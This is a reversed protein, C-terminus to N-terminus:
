TLVHPLPGRGAPTVLRLALALGRGTPVVSPPSHSLQGLTDGLARQATTQQKKTSPCLRRALFSLSDQEGLVQPIEARLRQM